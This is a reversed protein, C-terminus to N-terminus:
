TQRGPGKGLAERVLSLSAYRLTNKKRRYLLWLYLVVLVPLLLLLALLDPWVFNM